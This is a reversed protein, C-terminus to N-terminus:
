RRVVEKDLALDRVSGRIWESVCALQRIRLELGLRASVRRPELAALLREHNERQRLLEAEQEDMIRELKEPHSRAAFYLRAIFEFRIIRSNCDSTEDLWKRFRRRGESTARFARKSRSGGGESDPGILGRAELRKLISYMQSQSVQWVSGLDEDFRRYLEYGHLSEKELFGLALYEPRADSLHPRSAKM